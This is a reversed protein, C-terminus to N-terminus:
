ISKGVVLLPQQRHGTKARARAAKIGGPRYQLVIMRPPNASGQGVGLIGGMGLKGLQKEDLVRVDLGVERAMEQAVKALTPPNINNGPRSAITRSFNQADCVIRAREVADRVRSEAGGGPLITVKLPREQEREEQAKKASGVY